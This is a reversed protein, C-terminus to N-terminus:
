PTYINRIYILVFHISSYALTIQGEWKYQLQDWDMGTCGPQGLWGGLRSIEYGAVLGCVVSFFTSVSILSLYNRARIFAAVELALFHLHICTIEGHFGWFFRSRGEFFFGSVTGCVMLWCVLGGKM